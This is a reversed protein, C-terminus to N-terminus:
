QLIPNGNLQRHTPTQELIYKLNAKRAHKNDHVIIMHVHKGNNFVFIKFTNKHLDGHLVIVSIAQKLKM